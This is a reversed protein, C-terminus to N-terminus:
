RKMRDSFLAFDVTFQAAVDRKTREAPFPLAFL